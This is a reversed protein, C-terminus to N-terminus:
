KDNAELYELSGGCDRDGEDHNFEPEDLDAQLFDELSNWDHYSECETNCVPCKQIIKM